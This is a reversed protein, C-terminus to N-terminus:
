QLINWVMVIDLLLERERRKVTLTLFFNFTLTSM